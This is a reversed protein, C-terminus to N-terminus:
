AEAPREAPTPAPRAKLRGRLLLLPVGLLLAWPLLYIAISLLSRLGILFIAGSGQAAESLQTGVSSASPAIAGYRITFESMAVRGRTEALWARARDLEEQAQTISREAEVLEAPSGKRNRLAETLRAVLLERQRIRAETDVIQKSVEETAISADEARGGEQTVGHDLLVQFRRAESSAVRLKLTAQASDGATGRELALLQCRATSMEECLERHADQAAAIRDSPLLYSLAYSYALQPLGAPLQDPTAGAKKAADLTAVPAGDAMEESAAPATPDNGQEATSCAALFVAVGLPIALRM